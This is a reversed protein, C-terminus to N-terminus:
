PWSGIRDKSMFKPIWTDVLYREIAPQYSNLFDQHICGWLLDRLEDADMEDLHIGANISRGPVSSVVSDILDRVQSKSMHLFRIELQSIVSENQGRSAAERGTEINNFSIDGPTIGITLGMDRLIDEDRRGRYRSYGYPYDEAPGGAGSDNRASAYAPHKPNLQNARNDVAAKHQSSNPNKAM